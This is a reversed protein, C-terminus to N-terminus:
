DYFPWLFQVLRTTAVVAMGGTDIINNVPDLMQGQGLDWQRMEGSFSERKDWPNKWETGRHYGTNEEQVLKVEQIRTGVALLLHNDRSLCAATM